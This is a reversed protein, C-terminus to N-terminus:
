TNDWNAEEPGLDQPRCNGLAPRSDRPSIDYLLVTGARIGARVYMCVYICVYLVYMCSVHWVYLM